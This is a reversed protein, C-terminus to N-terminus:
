NENSCCIFIIIKKELVQKNQMKCQLVLMSTLLSEFIENDRREKVVYALGKFYFILCLFLLLFLKIIKNKIHKSVRGNYLFIKIIEDNLRGM